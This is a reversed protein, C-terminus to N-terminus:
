EILVFAAWDRLTYKTRLQNQAYQFSYRVNKTKQLQEYFVTMMEQTQADPVKWLSLIIFDVGVMKLARQMGFVGESGLVDGLGTQCASLVALRTNPFYLKSLEYATLVGDEVNEPIPKNEFLLAGGAFLLGSRFMPNPSNTFQQDNMLFDNEPRSEINPYYFGHTAIHIIQPSNGAELGKFSEETANEGTYYRITANQPVTKKINGVEALTGPLYNWGGRTQNDALYFITSNTENPEQYNRYVVERWQTTDLNYQIGGYLAVSSLNLISDSPTVINRSSSLYHINYKESLLQNTPLYPIAGFSIKNLLGAPSIYITECDNVLSDINQWIVHYLKDGQPPNIDEFGDNEPQAYLLTINEGAYNLLTDLEKQEFLFIMKPYTYNKRLVLACYFTSDTWRKGNYYKFSAFEIAVENPNLKNQVEKWTINLKTNFQNFESSERMLNKELNNAVAELSDTNAWRENTPLLYLKGLAEKVEILKKFNQILEENGSNMVANQMAVASQLIIGKLALENNYSMEVMAPNETKRDFVFSHYVQFYKNITNMFDEKEKETLFSFNQRIQNTLNQNAELLFPEAAAENKMNQYVSAINNLSTAYYPHGSGITKAWIEKCEFLLPLAENYNGMSKYLLALNNLSLAYDPHQTGLIKARIDKCEIFIPLAADFSGMSEYTSALNNLITAYTPHQKGITQEYIKKSELLLTLAAAYDQIKQYLNALNNLSVAYDPHQTGLVKERINVCEIALTTAADYNGMNEYFIAFNNLGTAYDPHQTGLIEARIEIAEEFLPQAAAYNGMNQYLLALQILNNAYFLHQKGVTKAFLEKSELLLQLAVDYNGLNCYIGGLSSLSNAYLYHEKGYTKSYIEKSQIFLPLAASFNGFSSYFSALEVLSNAYNGNETGFVTAIITNSEIILPMAVAYNGTNQYLTSLHRLLIAYNYHRTGYKKEYIYKSELFLPLAESYNGMEQYLQAINHLCIAYDASETGLTKALINKSENFLPLAEAYKGMSRYLEALWMLTLAYSLHETGVTIAFIEKTENFLLEAASYNGMDKYLLALSNLLSAYDPHTTGFKKAYIDKSQNFLLLAEEYNGNKQYIEAIEILTLAYYPHENGLTASYIDKSELYLELAESYNGLIKYLSALNLLTNAYDPHKNGLIKARIEKCELFLQLSESYNSMIQHIIALNNLTFAYTPNNKGVTAEYIEKSENFLLLAESFNGMDQYLVALNNLVNAYDAHQTGLLKARLNKCELCLPIAAEYNGMVKYLGALNNLSTAYELNETGNLRARLEKSEIYLPLADSYNGMIKHLLGLNNIVTAYELKETGITQAYVNKSEMLFPLATEYNGKNQYLLAIINLTTAYNIHIKGFETEAKEIAKQAAVIGNDADDANYFEVSKNYWYKWSVTDVELNSNLLSEVYSLNDNTQQYISNNEGLENKQIEAALSWYHKCSDLNNSYYWVYALNNYSYALGLVNNLHNKLVRSLEYFQLAKENEAKGFFYDGFGDILCATEINVPLSFNLNESLYELAFLDNKFNLLNNTEIKEALNKGDDYWEVRTLCGTEDWYLFKGESKGENFNGQQAKVGNEYYWTALGNMVDPNVSTMENESQLAGSIYYDRVMGVPKDVRNTTLVRFFLISDKISTEHWNKDYYITDTRQQATVSLFNIASFVILLLIYKKMIKKKSLVVFIQCKKFINLLKKPM